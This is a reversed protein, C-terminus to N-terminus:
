YPSSLFIGKDSAIHLRYAGTDFDVGSIDKNTIVVSRKTGGASLVEKIEGELFAGSFVEGKHTYRNVISVRANHSIISLAGNNIKLSSDKIAVPGIAEMGDASSVPGLARVFKVSKNNKIYVEIRMNKYASFGIAAWAGRSEIVDADVKVLSEVKGNRETGLGIVNAGGRGPVIRGAKIVVDPPSKKANASFAGAKKMDKPLEVRRESVPINIKSVSVRKAFVIRGGAFWVSSPRDVAGFGTLEVPNRFPLVGKDGCVVLVPENGLGVPMQKMKLTQGEKILVNESFPTSTVGKHASYSSGPGILSPNLELFSGGNSFSLKGIASIRDSSSDTYIDWGLVRDGKIKERVHAKTAFKDSFLSFVNRPGPGSISATDTENRLYVSEGKRVRGLVAVDLSHVGSISPNIAFFVDASAFGAKGIGSLSLSINDREGAYYPMSVPASLSVGGKVALRQGSGYNYVLVMTKLEPVPRRYINVEGATSSFKYYGTESAPCLMNGYSLLHYSFAKKKGTIDYFDPIGNHVSAANGDVSVLKKRWKFPNKDKNEVKVILKGAEDGLRDIRQPMVYPLIFARSEEPSIKKSYKVDIVGKGRSINVGSESINLDVVSSRVSTFDRGREIKANIRKNVSGLSGPDATALAKAILGIAQPGSIVVSDGVALDQIGQMILEDNEGQKFRYFAIYRDALDFLVETKFDDSAIVASFESADVFSANNGALLPSFGKDASVVGCGSVAMGLRMNGNSLVISRAGSKVAYGSVTVDSGRMHASFGAFSYDRNRVRWLVVEDNSLIDNFRGFFGGANEKGAVLGANSIGSIRNEFDVSNFAISKTKESYVGQTVFSRDWVFDNGNVRGSVPSFFVFPADYLRQMQGAISFGDGSVVGYWRAGIGLLDTVARDQGSPGGLWELTGVSGSMAGQTFASTQHYFIQKLPDFLITENRWDIGAKHLRNVYHGYDLAGQNLWESDYAGAYDYLSAYDSAGLGYIRGAGSYMSSALYDHFAPSNDYLRRYPSWFSGSGSAFNYVSNGLAGLITNDGFAGWFTTSNLGDTAASIGAAFGFA